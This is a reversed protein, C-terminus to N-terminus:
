TMDSEAVGHVVAHWAERDKVIEYLKSLSVGMSDIIVHFCRMRQQGRKKRNEIKALILTKVLSDFRQMLHALYQLKLKLMLGELPYEPNIGKLVSQNSRKAAWPVRSDKGATMSYNVM